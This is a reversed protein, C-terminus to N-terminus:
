EFCVQHTISGVIFNRSRADKVLIPNIHFSKGSNDTQTSQKSTSSISSSSDSSTKISATSITSASYSKRMNKLSDLPSESHRNDATAPQSETQRPETKPNGHQYEHQRLERKLSEIQKSETQRSEPKQSEIQKSDKKQSEIQKSEKQRLEPQRSDNQKSEKQRSEIQKSEVQRSEKKQTERPQSDNRRTDTQDSDAKRFETRSRQNPTDNKNTWINIENQKRANAMKLLDGRPVGKMPQELPAVVSM